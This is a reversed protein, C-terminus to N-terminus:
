MPTKRCLLSLTRRPEAKKDACRHAQVVSTCDIWKEEGGESDEVDVGVIRHEEGTEM